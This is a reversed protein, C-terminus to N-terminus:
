LLTSVPIQASSLAVFALIAGAVGILNGLLFGTKRGLWRMLHAAPITVGMLSLFQVAVPLTILAFSPTIQQGILAQGLALGWVTIPM